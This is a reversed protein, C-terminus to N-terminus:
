QHGYKGWVALSVAGATIALSLGVMHLGHDYLFASAVGVWLCVNTLRGYLDESTGVATTKAPETM